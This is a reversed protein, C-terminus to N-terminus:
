APIEASPRDERRIGMQGRWTQITSRPIESGTLGAFLSAIEADSHRRDVYLERLVVEIDRGAKAEVLMQLGTRKSGM